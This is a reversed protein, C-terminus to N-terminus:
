KLEYLWILIQISLYTISNYVVYEKGTNTKAIGFGRGDLENYQLIMEMTTGKDGSLIAYAQSSGGKTFGFYNGDEHSSVNTSKCSACPKLEDKM